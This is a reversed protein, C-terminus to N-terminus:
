SGLVDQKEAKRWAPMTPDLLEAVMVDYPRNKEFSALLWDRYNGRTLIGGQSLVNQSALADEWFTAWHAAYDANRALLEDVLKERKAQSSRSSLYRNTEVATPIVGIVDLYVRRLFTADDALAAKFTGPADAWRAAIFRDIPHATNVEPPAPPAPLARFHEGRRQILQQESDLAGDLEAALASSAGLWAFGLIFFSLVRRM